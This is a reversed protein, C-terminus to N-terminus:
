NKGKFGKGRKGRITRVIVALKAFAYDFLLFIGWGASFVFIVLLKNFLGQILFDAEQDWM